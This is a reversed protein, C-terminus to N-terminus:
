LAESYESQFVVYGGSSVDDAPNHTTYLVALVQVVFSVRFLVGIGAGAIPYEPAPKKHRPKTNQPTYLLM